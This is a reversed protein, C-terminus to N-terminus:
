YSIMDTFDLIAVETGKPHRRILTRSRLKPFGNIGRCDNSSPLDFRVRLYGHVLVWVGHLIKKRVTAPSSLSGFEFKELSRFYDSVLRALFSMNPNCTLISLALLRVYSTVRYITYLSGLLSGCDTCWHVTYIRRLWTWTWIHKALYQTHDM